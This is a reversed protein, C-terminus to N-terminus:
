FGLIHSGKRLLRCLAASGASKRAKGGEAATVHPKGPLLVAAEALLTGSVIGVDGLNFVAKRLPGRKVCLYDVVYGRRMRDLLNSLSGATILTYALKELKGSDERTFLHMLIGASASTLCLPLTRVLEPYRNLIKFSFVPNHSRYIAVKGGTGALDRPYDEPKGNEIRDKLLTDAGFIGAGLLLYPLM